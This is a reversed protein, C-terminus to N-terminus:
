DVGDALSAKKILVPITPVDSHGKSNGTAVLKIKDVVEQGKIVKGFVAYGWGSDNKSKFNLFANDKVNIFFQSTASHPDNTRAMAITYNANVLGNDAENVVPGRTAKQKLDVDMGGGQIMFDKIVRHFVTGDYFGDEVYQKFNACTAPAKAENLMIYINGLSTELKVLSRGGAPQEGAKESALADASFGDAVLGAVCFLTFCFGALAPAVTIMNLARFMKKM